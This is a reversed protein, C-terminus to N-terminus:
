RGSRRPTSRRDRRCRGPSSPWRRRRAARPQDRAIARYNRLMRATVPDAGALDAAEDFCRAAENCLRRSRVAAAGRQGPSRRPKGGAADAGALTAFFEAAEAYSGQITAAIPRPSPPPASRAVRRCARSPPPIAPAPPPSRSRARCRGTPSSRACASACRRYRLRRPGGRCLAHRRPALSLRPLRRRDGQAPMRGDRGPRPGRDPAAAASATASASAIPACRAAARSRRPRGAACLSPRGPHRRRPLHDCLRPRVPRDRRSRPRCAPVSCLGGAGAGLPFSDRLSIPQAAAAPLAALLAAGAAASWLLPRRM